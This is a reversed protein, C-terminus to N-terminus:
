LFYRTKIFSVVKSIYRCLYLYKGSVLTSKYNLLFEVNKKSEDKIFDTRNCFRNSLASSKQSSVEAKISSCVSSSLGLFLQTFNIVM